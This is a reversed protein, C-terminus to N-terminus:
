VLIVDIVDERSIDLCNDFGGSSYFEEYSEKAEPPAEPTLKYKKENEDFFYWNKDNLFFPMKLM